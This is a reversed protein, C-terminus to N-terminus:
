EKELVFNLVQRNPDGRTTIRKEYPKYGPSQVQVLRRGRGAHIVPLRTTLNGVFLGDLHLEAATAPRGDAVAQWL